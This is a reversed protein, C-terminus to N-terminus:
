FSPHKYNYTFIILGSNLMTGFRFRTMVMLHLIVTSLSLALFKRGHRALVSNPCWTKELTIHVSLCRIVGNQNM